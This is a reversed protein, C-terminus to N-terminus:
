EPIGNDLSILYHYNGEGCKRDLQSVIKRAQGTSENPGRIYMPKGEQGFDYKVPCVSAGIDGFIDRANKYDRHYSFGLGLVLTIIKTKQYFLIYGWSIILYFTGSKKRYL